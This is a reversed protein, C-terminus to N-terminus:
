VEVVLYYEVNLNIFDLLFFQLKGVSWSIQRANQTENVKGKAQHAAYLSLSTFLDNNNQIIKRSMYLQM